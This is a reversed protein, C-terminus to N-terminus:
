EAASMLEMAQREYLSRYVGDSLRLLETHTGEEVIEGHAFVLLRDMSKVTSLRHAVVLTTRGAILREIAEQILHESGSDLSSTAEDLILIPADALFARALAVRQREGGSLKIGREGVLTDYGKPLNLIFDHANALRAAEKVADMSAGPRGYAINESLTRHFLVPEQQVISIQRRLSDQTVEAVNQGDITIAGDTVDHLRQILKVFTTKGSGSHGVLGVREGGAIKLSFDSYLPTDHGAYHFLVKDFVIEGKTVALPKAGRRDAIEHRVAHIDVLEEMENVSRQLNRVHMGVERLYGQLTFFLTLVFVLDGASVGGNWGLILAMGLIAARFALMAIEQVLGSNTGRMWLRQTRRRWKGLVWDIREEERVEGAFSKVVGNCTIADALAGGVKTDWANALQAAPSIYGVSLGVVLGVYIVSGIAVVLGMIPWHWGLLASAGVLMVLRPFLGLIITDNFLDFAWMGRTIKRVTSGSFSNAHWDTSLRQIHFFAERAVDPMIRLTFSVLSGFTIRHGIAIM